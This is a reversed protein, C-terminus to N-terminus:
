SYRKELLGASTSVNKYATINQVDLVPKLGFFTRKTRNTGM